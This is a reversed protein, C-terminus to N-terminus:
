CKLDKEKVINLHILPEGIRDVGGVKSPWFDNNNQVELHDYEIKLGAINVVLNDQNYIIENNGVKKVAKEYRIEMLLNCATAFNAVGHNAFRWDFERNGLPPVIRNSSSVLGSVYIMDCGLDLCVEDWQHSYSLTGIKIVNGGQQDYKLPLRGIKVISNKDDYILPNKGISAPKADDRVKRNIDEAIFAIGIYTFLDELVM